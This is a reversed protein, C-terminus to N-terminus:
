NSSMIHWFGHHLWALCIWTSGMEWCEMDAVWTGRSAVESLNDMLHPIVIGKERSVVNDWRVKVGLGHEGV